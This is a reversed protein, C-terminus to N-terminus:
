SQEGTRYYRGDHEYIKKWRLLGNITRRVRSIVFVGQGDYMADAIEDWTAGDDGCQLLFEHAKKNMKSQYGKM